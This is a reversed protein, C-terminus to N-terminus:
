GSRRCQEHGAVAEGDSGDGRNMIATQAAGLVDAHDAVVVVLPLLGETRAEGRHGLGSVEDALAGGLQEDRADEALLRPRGLADHHRRPEDHTVRATRVVLGVARGLVLLAYPTPPSLGGCGM